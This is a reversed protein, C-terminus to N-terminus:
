ETSESDTQPAASEAAESETQVSEADPDPASIESEEAEGTDSPRSLEEEVGGPTEEPAADAAGTDMNEAEEDDGDCPAPVPVMVGGERIVRPEGIGHSPEPPCLDLIVTFSKVPSRNGINDVAYYAITRLGPSGTLTFPERYMMWDGGDISFYICAVGSLDDEAYLTIPTETNIIVTGTTEMDVPAPRSLCPDPPPCPAPTRVPPCPTTMPLCPDSVPACSPEPMCRGVPPICPAPPPCDAPPICPDPLGDCDMDRWTGIECVGTSTRCHGADQYSLPLAAGMPSVMLPYPDGLCSYPKDGIGEGNYDCGEYDSWFNGICGCYWMTRREPDHASLGNWIFSNEVVTNERSATRMRVGCRNEAILNGVIANNHANDFLIGCENRLLQCGEIRGNAVTNFHIAAERAGEIMCNRIVFYRTTHDIYIGFGAARPVIKWAEIIYPNERTGCGAVVGNERTFGCDGYIYIPERGGWWLYGDGTSGGMLLGSCLLVIAAGLCM